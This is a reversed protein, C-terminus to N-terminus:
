EFVCVCVCSLGSQKCNLAYWNPDALALVDVRANRMDLDGHDEMFMRWAERIRRMTSERSQGLTEHTSALWAQADWLPHDALQRMVREKMATVRQGGDLLYTM